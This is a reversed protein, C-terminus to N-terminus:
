VCGSQIVVNKYITKNFGRNELPCLISRTVWERVGTEFPTVNPQM